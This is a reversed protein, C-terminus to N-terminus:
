QVGVLPLARPTARAGTSGHLAMGGNGVIFVDSGVGWIALAGNPPYRLDSAVVRKNFLFGDSGVALIGLTSDSWIGTLLPTPARPDTITSAPGSVLERGSVDGCRQSVLRDGHHGMRNGPLPPGGLLPLGHLQPGGLLARQLPRARRRRRCRVCGWVAPRSCQATELDGRTPVRIGLAM